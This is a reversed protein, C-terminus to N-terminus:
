LKIALSAGEEIADIAKRPESADGIVHLERVKGELQSKLENVPKAGVAIVITDFGTLQKEQGDKEVKAGDQLIEKVTTNTAIQVEHRKLRLMLFHKVSEQVDNAVEALSEILTVKHGHEGLLDATECGVLGGGIILVKEGADKKGSIIDVATVVKPNDIGPIDPINPEAGTAVIVVDPNAAAVQDANAETGFRFDVGYKEGMYTYYNIAKTLDQKGPPMAGIRFQGGPNQEKEFLVVNHGRSAAIWAAELGGPGGGVIVLKRPQAAPEIKMKYERGCFPNVLCSCRMKDPNFIYGVCGQNCAICPQIEKIRGGAVKNPLNPDALSQRGWALLDAKGTRIAQKALVPDNIRGVGIVPISVAKKIEGINALNFGPPVDTPPIVYPMSGYVGTSVHVANVGVDEVISAVAKSEEVDRGDVVKEDGSMRFIIPFSGGVKKRMDKIVEVAFKMRNYFSGGFEDVRKNTHQSMFQAVLYGHAGHIEIADFGAERARAAADGFKEILEYVEKTTLERPIERSVFCPVPSPAVPQEGGLTDSSTQRGAHHIQVAIKAGYRHVADVLKKYGPIFKDDWLGLQHPIAKGLPDVGAIEVILLGWGGKARAEWYAIMEDSVTGDPNAFNTGMPPVVFRNGVEMTGIRIPSFLLKFDM